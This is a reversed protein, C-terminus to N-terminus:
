AMSREFRPPGYPSHLEIIPDALVGPVGFVALSPGKGFMLLRRNPAAPNPNSDGVITGVIAVEDGVGVPSRASVGRLRMQESTNGSLEYIELLAVGQQGDQSQVFVTYSGPPLTKVMAAEQPNGPALGLATLEAAQAPDDQWDNNVIPRGQSSNLQLKPNSLRPVNLPPISPGLARIAVKLCPVLPAPGCPGPSGGITFGGIIIRDGSEVKARTSFNRILTRKQLAKLLNLRGQTRFLPKGDQDVLADLRDTGMIVRDRIGLYDEWPYVSKVLALAGCVQPASFSTGSRKTYTEGSISPTLGLIGFTQGNPDDEGGPAGLEVRYQGYNSFDPKTDDLPNGPRVRTAGVAIVNDYPICAPYILNDNQPTDLNLSSNGAAAVVVMNNKRAGAVADILAADANSPPHYGFSCNIASAPPHGDSEGAYNIAAIDRVTDHSGNGTTRLILLSTNWAVGTMFQQNNGIAGIISAIRSGHFADGFDIDTVDDSPQDPVFNRWGPSLNGPTPTAGPTPTPAAFDPHLVNAGSDAVAIVVDRSGKTIDWAAPANIKPLNPQGPSTYYPDNPTVAFNSYVYNPQVYLVWPCDAYQRLKGALSIAPDSFEILQSLDTDSQRWERLLHAGTSAHFNAINQLFGTTSARWAHRSKWRVILQREVHPTQVVRDIQAQTMPPHSAEERDLGRRAAEPMAQNSAYQRVFDAPKFELNAASVAVVKEVAPLLQLRSIVTLAQQETFNSPFSVMLLLKNGACWKRVTLGNQSHAAELQSLRNDLDDSLRLSEKIQVIIPEPGDPRMVLASVSSSILFIALLPAAFRWCRFTSPSLYSKM